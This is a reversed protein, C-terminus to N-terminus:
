KNDSSVATSIAPQQRSQWIHRCLLICGVLLLSYATGNAWWDAMFSAHRDKPVLNAYGGMELGIINQQTLFYGLIAMLWSVAEIGLLPLVILRAIQQPSFVPREGTCAVFAVLIGLGAGFWWTGLFGWILALLTENEVGPIPFHGTTYYEPSVRVAIQDHIMGGIVTMAMCLLIIQDMVIGSRQREKKYFFLPVAVFTAIFFYLISGQLIEQFNGHQLAILGAKIVAIVLGFRVAYMILSITLERTTNQM